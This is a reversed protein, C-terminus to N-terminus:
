EAWGFTFTDMTGILETLEPDTMAAYWVIGAASGAHQPWVFSPLIEMDSEGEPISPLRDLYNDLDTSFGPAFYLSGYVELIVFLPYEELTHGEANCITVDCRCIDGPYYMDQPMEIDVGTNSCGAPTQTASPEPTDTPVPTSSPEPTDTPPLPTATQFPTETPLPSM